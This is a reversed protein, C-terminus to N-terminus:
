RSCATASSDGGTARAAVPGSSTATVARSTQSSRRVAAASRLPVKRAAM